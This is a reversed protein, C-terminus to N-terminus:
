SVLLWAVVAADILVGLAGKETLQARRGDWMVVIVATSLTAAGVLVPTSWGASLVYGAAGVVFGAVVLGYLVSAADLIVDEPLVGSLLWSRGNWGWEPDEGDAPEIWGRSLVVYWGHVVGHFALLLAVAYQLLTAM